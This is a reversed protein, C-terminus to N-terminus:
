PGESPCQYPSTHTHKFTHTSFQVLSRHTHTHTHTHTLSLSVGQCGGISRCLFSELLHIFLNHIPADIFCGYQIQLLTFSQPQCSAAPRDPQALGAPCCAGWPGSPVRPVVPELCLDFCITPTSCLRRKRACVHAGVRKCEWVGVCMSHIYVHIWLCKRERRAYGSPLSYIWIWGAIPLPLLRESGNQKELRHCFATAMVVEHHIWPENGVAEKRKRVCKSNCRFFSSARLM